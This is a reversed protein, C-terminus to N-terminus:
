AGTTSQENDTPSIINPFPQEALPIRAVVETGKGPTSRIELTGGLGEARERMTRLGFRDRFDGALAEVPFGAGHDAITVSGMNGDIAFRVWAHRASAHKRVNTLAEQIIRILQIEAEPSFQTARDDEVQLDVVIGSRQSFEHLYETLTPVLGLSKSVMTRLGFISQRVDEYAKAAVTRMEAVEALSAPQSSRELRNELTKLRLHLYGVAQALDDHIERALREREQVTAM